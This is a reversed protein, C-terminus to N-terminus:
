YDENVTAYAANYWEFYLGASELTKNLFNSGGSNDYYDLALETEVSGTECDIWFIGYDESESERVSIGNAKLRDFAEKYTAKM